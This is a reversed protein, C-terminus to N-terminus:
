YWGCNTSGSAITNCVPAGGNSISGWAWIANGWTFGWTGIQTGNAPLPTISLPGCVAKKCKGDTTLGGLTNTTNSYWSSPCKCTTQTIPPDSLLTGISVCWRYTGTGVASYANVAAADSANFACGAAAVSPDKVYAKAKSTCLSACTDEQGSGGWWFTKNVEGTLDKLVGTATVVNLLNDKSIKCFCTAGMSASTNPAFIGLGFLVFSALLFCLTGLNRM